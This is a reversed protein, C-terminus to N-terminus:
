YLPKSLAPGKSVCVVGPKQTSLAYGTAAFGAAREDATQVYRMGAGRAAHLLGLNSQGPYGFVVEAGAAMRLSRMVFGAITNM